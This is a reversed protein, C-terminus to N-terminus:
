KGNPKEAYNNPDLFAMIDLGDRFYSTMEWLERAQAWAGDCVARIFEGDARWPERDDAYPKM